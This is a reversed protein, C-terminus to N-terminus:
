HSARKGTETLFHGVANSQVYGAAIAADLSQEFSEPISSVWESKLLTSDISVVKGHVYRRSLLFLLFRVGSSLQPPNEPTPDLEIGLDKLFDSLLM